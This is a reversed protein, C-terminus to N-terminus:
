LQFYLKVSFLVTLNQKLLILYFGLLIKFTNTDSLFLFLSDKHFM